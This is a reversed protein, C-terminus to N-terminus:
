VSACQAEEVIARLDGDSIGARRARVVLEEALAIIALRIRARDDLRVVAGRGRRLDIVGDDRLSRYARLVTHVNVELSRALERAPPLRQGSVVEGNAIAARLAAEIQGHLPTTSATDIRLLM